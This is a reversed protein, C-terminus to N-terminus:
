APNPDNSWVGWGWQDSGGLLSPGLCQEGFEVVEAIQVGFREDLAELFSNVTGTSWASPWASRCGLLRFGTAITAHLRTRWWGITQTASGIYPGSQTWRMAGRAGGLRGVARTKPRIPVPVLVAAM